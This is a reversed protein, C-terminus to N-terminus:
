DFGMEHKYAMKQSQHYEKPQIAVQQRTLKPVMMTQLFSQELVM